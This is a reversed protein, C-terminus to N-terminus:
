AVGELLESLPVGDDPISLTLYREMQDALRRYDQALVANHIRDEHDALERWYRPTEIISISPSTM